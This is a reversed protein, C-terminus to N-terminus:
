TKRVGRAKSEIADILPISLADYLRASVLPGRSRKSSSRLAKIWDSALVGFLGHDPLGAKATMEFRVFINFTSITAHKAKAEELCAV